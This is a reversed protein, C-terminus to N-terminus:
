SGTPERYLPSNFATAVAQVDSDVYTGIHPSVAFSFVQKGRDCEPDPKMPGRLLSLRMINGQVAYGYKSETILAIGYGYESVEFDASLSPSFRVTPSSIRASRSVRQM